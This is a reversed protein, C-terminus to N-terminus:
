RKPGRWPARRVPNKKQTKQREVLMIKRAPRTATVGKHQQWCLDVQRDIVKRSRRAEKQQLRYAKEIQEQMYQPVEDAQRHHETVISM